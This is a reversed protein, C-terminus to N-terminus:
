YIQEIDELYIVFLNGQNGKFALVHDIEQEIIHQAVTKRTGM